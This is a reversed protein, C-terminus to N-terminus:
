KLAGSDSPLGPKSVRWGAVKPLNRLGEEEPQDVFLIVPCRGGRQPRMVHSFTHSRQARHGSGCAGAPRIGRPPFSHAPCEQPHPCSAGRPPLPAWCPLPASPSGRPLRSSHHGKLTPRPHPPGTQSSPQGAPHGAHPPEGCPLAPGLGRLSCEAAPRGAPQGRPSLRLGPSPPPRPRVRCRPLASTPPVTPWPSPATFTSQFGATLGGPLRGAEPALARGAGAAAGVREESGERFPPACAARSARGGGCM